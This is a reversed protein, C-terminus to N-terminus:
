GPLIFADLRALTESKQAGRQPLHEMAQEYLARIEARRTKAKEIAKVSFDGLEMKQYPLETRSYADIVAACKEWEARQTASAM